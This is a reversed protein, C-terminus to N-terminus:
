SWRSECVAKHIAVESQNKLSGSEIKEKWSQLIPLHEAPINQASVNLAKIIVKEHFLPM